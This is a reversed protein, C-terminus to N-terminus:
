SYVITHMISVARDVNFVLKQSPHIPMEISFEKTYLIYFFPM